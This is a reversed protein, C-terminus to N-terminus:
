RGFWGTDGILGVPVPIDTYVVTGLADAEEEGPSAVLEVDESLFRPNDGTQDVDVRLAVSCSPCAFATRM